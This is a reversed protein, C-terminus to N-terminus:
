GGILLYNHCCWIWQILLLDLTIEIIVEGAPVAIFIEKHVCCFKRCMGILMSVLVHILM